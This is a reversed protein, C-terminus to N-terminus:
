CIRVVRVTLRERMACWSKAHATDVAQIKPWYEGDEYEFIAIWGDPLKYTVYDIGNCYFNQHDAADNDAAWKDLEARTM